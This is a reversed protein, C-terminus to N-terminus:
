EFTSNRIRVITWDISQTVCQACSDGLYLNKRQNNRLKGNSLHKDFCKFLVKKTTELNSIGGIWETHTHAGKSVWVVSFRRQGDRKWWHLLLVIPSQIKEYFSKIWELWVWGQHDLMPAPDQFFSWALVRSVLQKCLFWAEIMIQPLFYVLLWMLNPVSSTQFGTPFIKGFHMQFGGSGCELQSIGSTNKNLKSPKLPWSITQCSHHLLQSFQIWNKGVLLRNPCLGENLQSFISASAVSSSISDGM